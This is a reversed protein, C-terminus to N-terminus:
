SNVTAGFRSNSDHAMHIMYAILETAKWLLLSCVRRFPQTDPYDTELINRKAINCNLGITDLSINLFDTNFYLAGNADKTNSHYIKFGLYLSGGQMARSDLLGPLTHFQRHSFASLLDGPIM